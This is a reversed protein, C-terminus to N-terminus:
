SHLPSLSNAGAGDIATEGDKAAHVILTDAEQEVSVLGRQVARDRREFTARRGCTTGRCHGPCGQYAGPLGRADAYAREYRPDCDCGRARSMLSFGIEGVSKGARLEAVPETNGNRSVALAGHLVLFLSDSPGGQAVADARARSGPSGNRQSSEDAAGWQADRLSGVGAVRKGTCVNCGNREDAVDPEILDINAGPLTGQSRYLPHTDGDAAISEHLVAVYAAFRRLRGHPAVKQDGAKHKFLQTPRM